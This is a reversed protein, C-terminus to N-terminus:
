HVNHNTVLKIKATVNRNEGVKSEYDHYIKIHGVVVCRCCPCIHCEKLWTELCKVHYTHQCPLEYVLSRLHFDEVCIVCNENSFKGKIFPLKYNKQLRFASPYFDVHKIVGNVVINSESVSSFSHYTRPINKTITKFYFNQLDLM